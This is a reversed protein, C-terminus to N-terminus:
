IYDDKEDYYEKVTKRLKSNPTLQLYKEFARPVLLRENTVVKGGLMVNGTKILGVNKAVSQDALGIRKMVFPLKRECINSVTLKDLQELNDVNKVAGLEYLKKSVSRLRENKKPNSDPLKSLLEALKRVSSVLDALTEYEEQNLLGYKRRVIKPAVTENQYKLLNTKRLLKKQHPKLKKM